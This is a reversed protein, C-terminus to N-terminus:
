RIEMPESVTLVLNLVPANAGGPGFFSAFSFENPEPAALIALTSPPPYGSPDSGALFGQVYRTIPLDVVSGEIGLDGPPVATGESAGFSAGLPAKPLTAKDLVPRVEMAVTDTPQFAQPSLRTRLQLAAYTVHEPGLTFPCGVTACLAPPGDLTTPLRVDMFTRWAPSGGVRMGDAPPAAPPDYIFTQESVDVDFIIVTDQQLASSAVVRLTAGIFKLRHGDTLVDIRGTRVSDSGERWRQIADSDFFFQLSDTTSADFDRTAIPTVVGGGPVSWPVQADVRDVANTWSATQSEWVEQTQGFALQVLGDTSAATDVQLVVYASVFTLATDTRISNTSDDRVSASTPIPDFRLLTRAEVGDYARAVVTSTMDDVRGYGGYVQLDSGFEDWALQLSVTVPATPIQTDDPGSPTEETCAAVAVLAAAAVAAVANGM